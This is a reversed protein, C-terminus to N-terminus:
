NWPLVGGLQKAVALGSGLGDEHFGYRTWAGCFWLHKHGQISNLRTQANIAAADFVPHEFTHEDHVTQASPSRSPNLTVILPMHTPINQLNNMWYSLSVRARRDEKEESLYVWSAWCSRRRPMFSADSHLIVKNPQYRIAALIEKQADTPNELYKLAQDAHCAFIVEDFVEQGRETEVVVDNERATVRKVATNLHVRDAFPAILRNVYERSGRTVTYWQPQDNLTLLGHNDFFQVFTRAPFELMQELPMSWIAGGMALLFYNRFWEGMRLEDLCQRLTVSADANRYVLAQKQFRLVDSILGLYAPRFFNEPQAFISKLDKTGYELWGAGISAGFSMDSKETPVSLHNFLAVLNPYNRQNFVIFGTDVPYIGEPTKVDVTRSHGGPTANKEYVTIAHRTHLAFAAGLGSIGSGIIAIKM